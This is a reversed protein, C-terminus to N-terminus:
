HELRCPGQNAALPRFRFGAVLDPIWRVQDYAISHRRFRHLERMRRLGQGWTICWSCSNESWHALVNLNYQGIAGSNWIMRIDFIVCDGARAGAAVLPTELGEPAPTPFSCAQMNRLCFSPDTGTIYLGCYRFVPWGWDVLTPLSTSWGQSAWELSLLKVRPVSVV